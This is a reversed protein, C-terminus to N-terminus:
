DQFYGDNQAKENRISTVTGERQKRLKRVPHKAANTAKKPFLGKVNSGKEASHEGNGGNRNNKNNDGGKQKRQAQGTRKTTQLHKSLVNM